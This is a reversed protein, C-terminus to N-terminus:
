VTVEADDSIRRWMGQSFYCWCGTGNGTQERQKRANDVYVCVGETATSPLDAITYRTVAM